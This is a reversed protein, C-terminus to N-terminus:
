IETQELFREPRGSSLNSIPGRRGEEVSEIKQVEVAVVHALDLISSPSMQQLFCQATMAARDQKGFFDMSVRDFQQTM